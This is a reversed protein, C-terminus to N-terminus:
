LDIPVADPHQKGFRVNGRSDLGNGLRNGRAIGGIKKDNGNELSTENKRSIEDAGHVMRPKRRFDIEHDQRAIALGRFGGALDIHQAINFCIHAPAVHQQDVINEFRSSGKGEGLIKQRRAPRLGGIGGHQQVLRAVKRSMDRRIEFPKM